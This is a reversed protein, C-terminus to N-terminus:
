LKITEVGEQEMVAFNKVSIATAEVISQRLEMAASDALGDGGLM